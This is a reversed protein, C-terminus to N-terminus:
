GKECGLNDPIVESRSMIMICRGCFFDLVIKLFGLTNEVRGLCRDVKGLLM